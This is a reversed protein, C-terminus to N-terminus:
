RNEERTDIIQVQCTKMAEIATRHSQPTVCACANEHVYVAAEPDAAKALMVNSIVCIGTCVGCFHIEADDTEKEAEFRHALEMSGFSPKDVLEFRDKQFTQAAEMVDQVLEWGSTGKICHRVPLNRGEQTKEYNEDHTDRTLYVKDWEKELLSVVRPIVAQCEGNGLCGTTFDNQMDVVILIKKM